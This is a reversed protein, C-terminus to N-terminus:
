SIRAKQFIKAFGSRMASVKNIRAIGEKRLRQSKGIDISENEGFQQHRENAEWSKTRRKVGLSSMFADLGLPIIHAMCRIHNRLEAGQIGSGEFTSQLELTMSYNSFANDMRLGLLRSDTLDVRDLM